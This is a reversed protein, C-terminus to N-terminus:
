CRTKTGAKVDTKMDNKTIRNKKQKFRKNICSMSISVHYKRHYFSLFIEDVSKYIRSLTNSLYSSNWGTFINYFFFFFSFAMSFITFKFFHGPAIPASCCNISSSRRSTICLTCRYVSYWLRFRWCRSTITRTSTTATTWAMTRARFARTWIAWWWSRMGIRWM